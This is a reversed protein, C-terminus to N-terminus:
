GPVEEVVAAAGRGGGAAVPVEVGFGGVPLLFDVEPVPAAGGRLFRRLLTSEAHRNQRLDCMCHEPSRGHARQMLRSIACRHPFSGGGNGEEDDEEGEAEAEAGVVAPPAALLTRTVGFSSDGDWCCCCCCYEFANYPTVGGGGATVTETEVLLLLM